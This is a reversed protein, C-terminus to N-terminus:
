ANDSHWLGEMPCQLFGKLSGQPAEASLLSPTEGLVPPQVPKVLSVEGCWEYALPNTLTTSTGQSYGVAWWIGDCLESAPAGAVGTSLTGPCSFYGTDMQSGWPSFMGICPMLLGLPESAMGAAEARLLLDWAPHLAQLLLQGAATVLDGRCGAHLCDM